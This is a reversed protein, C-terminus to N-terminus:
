HTEATLTILSHSRDGRSPEAPTGGERVSEVTDKGFSQLQYFPLDKRVSSPGDRDLTYLLKYVVRM